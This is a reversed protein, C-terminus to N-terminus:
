RSVRNISVQITAPALAAIVPGFTVFEVQRNPNVGGVPDVLDADDIRTFAEVIFTTGLIDGPGTTFGLGIIGPSPVGVFDPAPYFPASLTGITAGRLINFTSGSLGADAAQFAIRFLGPQSFEFLSGTAATGAVGLGTGVIVADAAASPFFIAADNPPAAAVPPVTPVTITLSLPAPQGNISEEQYQVTM